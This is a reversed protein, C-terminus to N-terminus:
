GWLGQGENIWAFDRCEWDFGFGSHMGVRTLNMWGWRDLNRKKMWFGHGEVGLGM